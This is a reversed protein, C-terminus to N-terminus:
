AQRRRANDTFLTYRRRDNWMYDFHGQWDKAMTVDDIRVLVGEHEEAASVTFNFSGVTVTKGDVVAIKLQMFVDKQTNMKIAIGEHAIEHLIKQQLETRTFQETDTIIRVKVGRRHAKIMELVIDLDTLADIAVDLSREAEHIAGLLIDKPSRLGRRSFGYLIRPHLSVVNSHISSATAAQRDGSSIRLKNWGVSAFAGTLIIGGVVITVPEVEDGGM